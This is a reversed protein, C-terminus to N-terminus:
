LIGLWQCFESVLALGFMLMWLAGGLVMMAWWVEAAVGMLRTLELEFPNKNAM